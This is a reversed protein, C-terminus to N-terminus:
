AAEEKTVTTDDDDNTMYKDIQDAFGEAMKREILLDIADRVLQSKSQDTFFSLAKLFEVQPLDLNYSRLVRSSNKAM